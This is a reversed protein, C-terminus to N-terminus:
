AHGFGERTAIYHIIEADSGMHISELIESGNHFILTDIFMHMNRDSYDKPNLVGWRGYEEGDPATIYMWWDHETDGREVVYRWGLSRVLAYVADYDEEPIRVAVDAVHGVVRGNSGSFSVARWKGVRELLQVHMGEELAYPTTGDEPEFRVANRLTISTMEHEKTTSSDSGVADGM